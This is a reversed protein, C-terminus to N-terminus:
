SPRGVADLVWLGCPRPYELLFKSDSVSVGMLDKSM